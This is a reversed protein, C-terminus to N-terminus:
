PASIWYIRVQRRGWNHAADVDEGMYIDIKRKWRKAMKDLVLFEGDFGEIRVRARHGLGLAILDRSVAIARMGPRLVDGWAALSPDGQTQGPLSNYATATVVTSREGGRAVCATSFALLVALVSAMRRRLSIEMCRIMTWFM